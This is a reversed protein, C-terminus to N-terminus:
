NRVHLEVGAQSEAGRVFLKVSAAGPATPSPVRANVQLLGIAGPSAGAYLLQAAAGAIELRISSGDILGHGTAYFIVISGPAAPNAASNLSGNENVATPFLAPHSDVVPLMLENSSEGNRTVRFIAQGLALTEPVRLNVQGNSAFLHPAQNMNITIEPAPDPGLSDGFMSIYEGPAVAGGIGSFANVVGGEILRPRAPLGSTLVWLESSSGSNLSGGFFYTAGREAAYAGQHRLRPEPALSSTPFQSWTRAGTDFFWTDGLLGAGSGGFLVVRNRRSDFSFGYHQRAPPKISPSVETWTNTQLNFSWLDGLPCPGFGSACGGYLYMQRGAPDLVAHHLCRRLPKTGAPTLNRWQNARLDFEWTDDFRGSNTFGHSIIMRDTAADLVASHGYRLSPGANDAALLTWRNTRIDYAWVDSFFGRAQGGFLILRQRKEDNLLTHGLRAAPIAGAPELLKWQNAALSYVWLDNLTSAAQGGFLFLSASNADYAITGDIRASPSGGVPPLLEYRWDQAILLTSALLLAPLRMM